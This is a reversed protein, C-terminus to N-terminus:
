PLAYCEAVVVGTSGDASSVVMTYNGADLTVRVMADRSGASLPFAGVVSAEDRLSADWRDNAAVVEGAANRLELKPDALFDGVGFAGLAPGVARLLFSRSGGRVALGSILVDGSTAIRGRTSFNVAHGTEAPAQAAAVMQEVLPAMAEVMLEYGALNPHLQDPMLADPIKGDTGFFAPGMDLFRARDGDDLTALDANIARIREMRLEWQDVTGNSATRPGRPLVALLLVRTQPLAERILGVIKRNAAIIQAATNSETNNTGIMLVVVAPAMNELEHEEIRWILHETRDGGIGFNAPQYKGWASEWLAPAVTGWRETISDGLFLVGIPGAKARRLFSDHLRFFKANGTKPIGITADAAQAPAIVM